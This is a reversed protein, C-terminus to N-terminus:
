RYKRAMRKSFGIAIEHQITNLKEAMEDITVSFGSDSGVIVVRDGIHPDIMRRAAYTRMDVEFMCQDMCINGVQHCLMGDVIFDTRGSLGRMLGDAYGIPVTCIKVTGPCRYHLGYSVGEGIVPIREDTIRAYVSMAPRLDISSWTEKCPHFGYLSIGLRV